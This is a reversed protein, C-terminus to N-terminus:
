IAQENFCSRYLDIVVYFRSIDTAKKHEPHLTNRSPFYLFYPL